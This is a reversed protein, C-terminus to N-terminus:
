VAFLTVKNINIFDSSDKLPDTITEKWTCRNIETNKTRKHILNSFPIALRRFLSIFYSM